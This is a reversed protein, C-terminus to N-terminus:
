RRTLEPCDQPLLVDGLGRGVLAEVYEPKAGASRVEQLVPSPVARAALQDVLDLVSGRTHVTPDVTIRVEFDVGSSKVLELSSWAREGASAIGTIEGYRHPAAKIDLAVWDVHSLVRELRAPFAGATQLGVAFGLRRADKIAPILAAQRTPEGGSFVLSDWQGKRAVLIECVQHWSVRTPTRSSQLEPNYCYTCRWPCGQLLLTLPTHGLWGVMPLSEMRSIALDGARPEPATAQAPEATM